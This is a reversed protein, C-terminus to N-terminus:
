YVISGSQRRYQDYHVGGGPRFGPYHGGVGSFFFSRCGGTPDDQPVVFETAAMPGLEVPQELHQRVRNGGSDYYDVATLILPQSTDTNRISLTGTLNISRNKEVMYIHSYIPVYVTQGAVIAMSDDLTIAKLEPAAPVQSTAVTTCGALAMVMVLGLSWLLHSQIRDRKALPLPVPSTM